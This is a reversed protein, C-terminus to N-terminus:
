ILNLQQGVGRSLGPVQVSISRTMMGVHPAADLLGLQPCKEQAPPPGPTFHRSSTVPHVAVSSAVLAQEPVHEYLNISSLSLSLSLEHLCVHGMGVNTPHTVIQQLFGLSQSPPLTAFNTSRVYYWASVSYSTSSLTTLRSPDRTSWAQAQQVFPASCRSVIRPPPTQRVSESLFHESHFHM